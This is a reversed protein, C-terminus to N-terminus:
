EAVGRLLPEGRGAEEPVDDVGVIGLADAVLVADAIRVGLGEGSLVPQLGLVASDDPDLVLGADDV